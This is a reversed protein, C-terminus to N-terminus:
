VMAEGCRSLVESVLGRRGISAHFITFRIRRGCLICEFPDVKLFTKMMQGYRLPPTPTPNKEM